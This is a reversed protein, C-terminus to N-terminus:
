VDDLQAEGLNMDLRILHDRDFLITVIIFPAGHDGVNALTNGADKDLAEFVDVAGDDAVHLAGLALVIHNNITGVQGTDQCRGANIPFLRVRVM